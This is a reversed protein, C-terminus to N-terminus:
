QAASVSQVVPAPAIQTIWITNPVGAIFTGPAFTHETCQSGVDPVPEPQGVLQDHWTNASGDGPVRENVSQVVLPAPPWSAVHVLGSSQWAPKSQTSVPAPTFHRFFQSMVVPPLPHM